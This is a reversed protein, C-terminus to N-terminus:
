ISRPHLRKSVPRILYRDCLHEEAETHCPAAQEPCAAVTAAMTFNPLVDGKPPHGHVLYPLYLEMQHKLGAMFYDTDNCTSIPYSTSLCSLRSYRSGSLLYFYLENVLRVFGSVRANCGHGTSVCEQTADVTQSAPKHLPSTM